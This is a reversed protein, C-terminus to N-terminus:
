RKNSMNESKRPPETSDQIDNQKKPIQKFLLPKSQTTPPPLPPEQTPNKLKMQIEKESYGIILMCGTFLCARYGYGAFFGKIGHEKYINNFVDRVTLIKQDSKYTMQKKTAMVDFPHSIAAGTIGILLSAAAIGANKYEPQCQQGIWTSFSAAGTLMTFGFVAERGLLPKLGTWAYFNGKKKLIRMAEIPKCDETQQVLVMHEVPASVFAGLAGSILGAAYKPYNNNSSNNDSTLFKQIGTNVTVQVMSVPALTLAFSNAGRFIHQVKQLFTLDKNFFHQKQESEARKKAQEFIYCAYGATTGGVWGAFLPHWWDIKQSQAESRQELVNAVTSKDNAPM